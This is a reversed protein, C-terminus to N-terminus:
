RRWKQVWEPLRGATRIVVVILMMALQRQLPLQRNSDILECAAPKFFTSIIKTIKKAM